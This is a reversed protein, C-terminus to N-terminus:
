VWRAVMNRTLSYFAKIGSKHLWREAYSKMAKMHCTHVGEHVVHVLELLSIRRTILHAFDILPPRDAPNGSMVILKPRYNKHHAISIHRRCQYPSLRYWFLLYLLHPQTFEKGPEAVHNGVPFPSFSLLSLDPWSGLQQKTERLKRYPM